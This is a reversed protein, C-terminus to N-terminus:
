WDDRMDDEDRNEIDYLDTVARLDDIYMYYTGRALIPNCDVRFGVVRLGPRVGDYASSQIIGHEGDPTPPVAVQMKKWGSFGLSGVYLEFNNGYYDQVLAYLSHDMNRGAVWLSLTKTVGEIPIPRASRIFFSNVGRRFFEVKVGLVKTDVAEEEGKLPEKAAPSGSFLRSSIVGNDPSIAANWSGELEFRDVSVEKLAQRASDNGIVTPDPSALSEQAFMLGTVSLALVTTLLKKM